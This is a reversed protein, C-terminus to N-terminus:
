FRLRNKAVWRYFIDCLPKIFPLRSLTVLRRYGIEAYVCRVADAGGLLQDDQTLLYMQSSLDDRTLHLHSLHFMSDPDHIDLFLISQTHDKRQIIERNKRCLRCQGDYFIKM